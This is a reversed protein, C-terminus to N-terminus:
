IKHVDDLVVSMVERGKGGEVFKKPSTSNPLPLGGYLFGDKQSRLSFKQMGALSRFFWHGKMRSPWKDVIGM